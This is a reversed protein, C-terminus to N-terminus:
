IDQPEGFIVDLNAHSPLPAVIDVNGCTEHGMDPVFGKFTFIGFTILRGKM